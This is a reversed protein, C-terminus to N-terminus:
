CESVVGINIATTLYTVIQLHFSVYFESFICVSWVRINYATRLYTVQLEPLALSEFSAIDVKYKGVSPWRRSEPRGNLLM